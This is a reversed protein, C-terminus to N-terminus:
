EDLAFLAVGDKETVVVEARCVEHGLQHVHHLGQGLGRALRDSKITTNLERAPPM